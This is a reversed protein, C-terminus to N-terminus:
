DSFELGDLINVTDAGEIKKQGFQYGDYISAISWLGTGNNYKIDWFSREGLSLSELPERGLKRQDWIACTCDYSGTLLLSPNAGNM